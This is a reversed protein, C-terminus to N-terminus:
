AAVSPVLASDSTQARRQLAELLILSWAELRDSNALLEDVTSLGVDGIADEAASAPAVALEWLAVLGLHVRSVPSGNDVLVGAWQRGLCELKGLEEEVERMAAADLTAKLDIGEGQRIIDSLDIHGGLGVSVRGHLRSEGGSPTRTYHVIKDGVKLVVYPIIQRFGETEELVVRPGLWLGARQVADIAEGHAMESFGTLGLPEPLRCTETALILRDM